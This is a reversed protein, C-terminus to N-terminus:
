PSPYPTQTRRLRPTSRHDRGTLAAWVVLPPWGAFRVFAYLTDVVASATDGGLGTWAKLVMWLELTRGHLAFYGFFLVAAGMLWRRRGLRERTALLLVSCLILGLSHM